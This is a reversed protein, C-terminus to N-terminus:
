LQIKKAGSVSPAVVHVEHGESIFNKAVNLVYTETGGISNPFFNEIVQVIKM